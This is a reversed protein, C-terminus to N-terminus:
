RWYVPSRGSPYGARKWAGTYTIPLRRRNRFPRFRAEPRCLRTKLRSGTNRSKQTPDPNCQLTSREEPAVAAEAPAPFARSWRYEEASAVFGARVPNEEIYAKIRSWERDDRVWHDCSERQWFPEGTRGLVLNAERAAAVKPKRMVEPVAARPTM